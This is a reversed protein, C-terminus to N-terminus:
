LLLLLIALGILILFDDSHTTTTSNAIHSVHKKIQQEQPPMSFQQSPQSALKIASTPLSELPCLYTKFLKGAAINYLFRIAKAPQTFPIYLDKNYIEILSINGRASAARIERALKLLEANDPCQLIRIQLKSGIKQIEYMHFYTLQIVSISFYPFPLLRNEPSNIV